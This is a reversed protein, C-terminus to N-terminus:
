LVFGTVQLIQTSYDGESDWGDRTESLSDTGSTTSTYNKSHNLVKIQLGHYAVDGHDSWDLGDDEASASARLSGFVRRLVVLICFTAASAYVAAITVGLLQNIFCHIM